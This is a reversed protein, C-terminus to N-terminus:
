SVRPMKYFSLIVASDLLFENINTNCETIDQTASRYALKFDQRVQMEKLKRSTIQLM